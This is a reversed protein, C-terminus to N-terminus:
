KKIFSISKDGSIFFYTGATLSTVDVENGNYTGAVVIQGNANVISYASDADIGSLSIYNVAPSPYVALGSLESDDTGIKDKYTAALAINKAPMSINITAKNLDYPDILGADAGIWKDFVKDAAPADATLIVTQQYVAKNGTANSTANTLAISYLVSEYEATFAVDKAPMTFTIEAKTEDGAALLDIDGSWKDFVVQGIGPAAATLTVSEGMAATQKDAAGGGVTITYMIDKYTAELAINKAPMTLTVSSKTLDGSAILNADAGVWKDFEKDTAPPAATITVSEQYIATAPGTADTLALTYNINKYIAEFTVNWFPMSLIFTSSNLDDETPLNSSGYPGSWKDFVKGTTAAAATFTVLTECKAEAHSSTGGTVTITYLADNSVLVLDYPVTVSELGDANATLTVAGCHNIAFGSFTAVGNVFPATNNVMSAGVNNTFTVVGSVDFDVAGYKDIARIIPQYYLAVGEVGENWPYGDRFIVRDAVVKIKNEDGTQRTYAEDFGNAAFQSNAADAAADVIKVSIVENDIITEYMGGFRVSVYFDRSEGNPVSLNCPISVVSGEFGHSGLRGLETTGDSITLTSIGDLGGTIELYLHKLNTPLGDSGVDSVTFKGVTLSDRDLAASHYDRYDFNVPYDFAAAKITSQADTKPAITRTEGAYTLYSYSWDSLGTTTFSTKVDTEPVKITAGVPATDKLKVTIFLYGSRLKTPFNGSNSSSLVFEGDVLSTLSGLLEAGAIASPSSSYYLSYYEIQDAPINTEIPIKVGTLDIIPLFAGVLNFGFVPSECGPQIQAPLDMPTFYTYTREVQSLLIKSEPSGVVVIPGGNVSVGVCVFDGGYGARHTLCFDYVGGENLSGGADKVASGNWDATYGDNRVIETFPYSITPHPWRFSLQAGADSIMFFQYNATEQVCFYGWVRSAYDDADAVGSFPSSAIDGYTHGVSGNREGVEGASGFYLRDILKTCTSTYKTQDRLESLDAAASGVQAPKFLEWVVNGTGSHEADWSQANVIMASVLLVLLLNAKLLLIKKM